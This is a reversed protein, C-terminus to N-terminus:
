RNNVKVLKVFIEVISPDFRTGAGERIVKIANEKSNSIGESNLAREYSETISIIRSILPIEEGKLGRPYGEGDWREHHSYVYEAIDVTDDFLNLIRYGIISHQKMKESEEAELIDKHLTGYDLVIKGIDHLYGARKLKNIQTDSLNLAVGIDSCLESVTIAHQKERSSKSHLAEVITNLIESNISKRNLTKNKYMINEAESVINEILQSESTKTYSGLSISCKIAALCSESFGSKIHSLIRETDESNTRPLIIIFEDGGIRAIFDNKRCSEKLIESSKKILNDGAAHGFIDNTMKLGNVDGFIVSLPLNSPIDVNKLYDEFSRRNNLGTLIDHFSLYKIEEEKRKRETIDIFTIVAGIIKGNSIQPYSRYEANFSTGDAKWFVEDDAYTGMGQKLPQLIKCDEDPFPTGDLRSHHFLSHMNKGLLETQDKYGLMKVCSINCFTCNGDLDIGFIAEAASDLILQLKDKNYELEETRAKVTDELNNILYQLYESVKNFAISIKGIEDNRVVIARDSFNGSSINDSVKLLNNIPKFLKITIAYYIIISLIIAAISLFAALQLSKTIETFLLKKPVASVIVWKIGPQNYEELNFYLDGNDGKYLFRSNNDKKYQEYAQVVDTNDIDSITNRMLTGDNLVTFNEAGCSNAILSGTDREVIYAYGQNNNVLSELYSDIGSLLMHTGLVGMVEGNKDYVPYAASVTLDDMIFHKYIPSFVPGKSQVAAKYWDRTRPDFKGAQVVLEGATLDDNVSYYWSNGETDANNRMIEIVGNENRRAGYYEGNVTGFSFSYIEKDYSSLVGVFFKERAVEDSLDVIGNEIIKHNVENITVPINMLTDIKSYIHQNMDEAINNVIGKASSSWNSFVLYGTSSVTILLVIVFMIIILNMISISKKNNNNAM